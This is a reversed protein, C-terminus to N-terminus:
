ITNFLSGRNTINKEFTDAYDFSLQCYKENVSGRIELYFLSLGTIVIIQIKQSRCNSTLM